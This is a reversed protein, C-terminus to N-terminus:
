PVAEEALARGQQGHLSSRGNVPSRGNRRGHERFKRAIQEDWSLVAEEYSGRLPFWGLNTDLMKMQFSVERMTIGYEVKADYIPM